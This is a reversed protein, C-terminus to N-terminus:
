QGGEGSISVAADSTTGTESAKVHAIEADSESAGKLDSAGELEASCGPSAGHSKSSADSREVSQAQAGAEQAQEAEQLARVQKSGDGSLYAVSVCLLEALTSVFRSFIAIIASLGVPLPFALAFLAVIAGERFVLGSPTIFSLFGIDWAIAYIGICIPLAALPASPWIALLLVFFACGAILWSGCWALTVLLIDSYRLTLVIPQRKLLRLATNILGNLVPPYLVVLLAVITAIGVIMVLSGHLLSGAAGIDHWFLLSAAFILV